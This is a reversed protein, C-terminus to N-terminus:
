NCYGIMIFNLECGSPLSSDVVITFANTQKNSIYYAHGSPASSPIYSKGVTSSSVIVSYNLDKMVKPLKVIYAGNIVNQNIVGNLTIMRTDDMINYQYDDIYGNFKANANIDVYQRNVMQHDDLIEGTIYLDQYLHGGSRKLLDDPIKPEQLIPVWQPDGINRGINIMMKDNKTDYWIQGETANSPEIDNAFHEMINVLDTWVTAGFDEVGRGCMAISTQFNYEDDKLYVPAKVNNSFEIITNM